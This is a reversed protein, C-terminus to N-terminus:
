TLSPRVQITGDKRLRTEFTPAPATAPGHRVSGDDLRFTSGHWPCVVCAEGDEEVLRGQHLPGALHPCTDVMVTVNEARRLM